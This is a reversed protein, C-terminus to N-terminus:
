RSLSYVYVAGVRARSPVLGSPGPGLVKIVGCGNDNQKGNMGTACSQEEPAGVPLTNGDIALGGSNDFFSGFLDGAEYELGSDPYGPRLNSDVREAVQYNIEKHTFSSLGEVEM